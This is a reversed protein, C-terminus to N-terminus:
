HYAGRDRLAHGPQVLLKLVGLYGSRAAHHLATNGAEDKLSLDAGRVVLEAICAEGGAAAGQPCGAALMAPTRGNWGRANILTAAEEHGAAELLLHLAEHEGNRCAHCM